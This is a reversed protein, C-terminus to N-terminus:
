KFLGIFFGAIFIVISVIAVTIQTMQCIRLIRRGRVEGQRMNYEFVRDGASKVRKHAPVLSDDYLALADGKKGELALAIVRERIQIYDSREKLLAQYNAQDEAEFICKKYNELYGTTRQSLAKIEDRMEQRRQPNETVILLLTRSADALYANAEGAFTLGPLTDDVILEANRKLQSVSVYGLAGALVLIILGAGFIKFWLKSKM